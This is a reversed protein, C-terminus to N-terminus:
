TSFVITNEAQGVPASPGLQVRRRILKLVQTFKNNNFKSEVQFVFFLGSLQDVEQAFKYLGTVPDLDLPTRFRLLIDVQGSQYNFSGDRMLNFNQPPILQNGMGSSPIYYPDGRIEVELNMIDAPQQMIAQLLKVQRTRADDRNRSFDPTPVATTQNTAGSGSTQQINSSDGPSVRNDSQERINTTFNQATSSTNQAADAPVETFFAMKFDLNLSLIESNKGSYTYDYIRQVQSILNRYGSPRANPALFRDVHVAYPLVRYIYRRNQRGFRDNWTTSDEVHTEIRFWNIMGNPDSLINEDTLQKAIYDSRLIVDTIIDEIKTNAPFEFNRKESVTVRRNQYIRRVSDFVSATSPFPVTGNNELDTFLVSRSIDNGSNERDTQNSPFIIVYEDTSALVGNRVQGQQFNRLVSTLSRAGTNNDSNESILLEDVKSGSITVSTSIKTVSDRLAIENYPIAQCEYITGSSEVNFQIRIFKIPIYRTLTSDISPINNDDYGAWEITLLFAAERYNRYGGQIAGQQLAILFLGMSYPETVKFTIKHAFTNGTNNNLHPQNSFIVDDIFYDFKGFTTTVRKAGNNNWDGKSSAVINTLSQSNYIGENQQQISICSLTFLSNYSVYKNLPNTKATELNAVFNDPVLRTATVTMEIDAPQEPTASPGTTYSSPPNPAPSTLPNEEGAFSRQVPSPTALPNEEGAFARPPPRSAAAFVPDLSALDTTSVTYSGRTM